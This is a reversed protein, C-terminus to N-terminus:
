VHARGIKGKIEPYLNTAEVWFKNEVRVLEKLITICSDFDIGKRFLGKPMPELAVIKLEKLGVILSHLYKLRPTMELKKDEGM